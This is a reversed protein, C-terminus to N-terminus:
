TSLTYTAARCLKVANTVVKSKLRRYWGATTIAQVELLRLRKGLLHRTTTSIGGQCGFHAAAVSGNAPMM